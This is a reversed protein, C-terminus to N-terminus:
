AQEAPSDNTDTGSGTPGKGTTAPKAETTQPKAPATKTSPPTARRRLERVEKIGLGCLTAIQGDTQGLETLRGVSATRQEDAAAAAAQAAVLAEVAEYFETAADVILRDQEARQADLEAKAQRARARASMAESAKVM